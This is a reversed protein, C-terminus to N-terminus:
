SFLRFVSLINNRQEMELIYYFKTLPANNLIIRKLYKLSCKPSNSVRAGDYFFCDIINVASEFPVVSSFM